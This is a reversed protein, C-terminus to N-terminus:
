HMWAVHVNTVDYRKKWFNVPVSSIEDSSASLMISAQHQEARFPTRGVSILTLDSRGSSADYEEQERVDVVNIEGVATSAFDNFPVEKM